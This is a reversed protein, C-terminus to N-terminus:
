SSQSLIFSCFKTLVLIVQSRRSRTKRMLLILIAMGARVIGLTTLHSWFIVNRLLKKLVLLFEFTFQNPTIYQNEPKMKRIQLINASVLYRLFFVFFM